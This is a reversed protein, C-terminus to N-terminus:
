DGEGEKCVDQVVVVFLRADGLVAGQTLRVVYTGGVGTDTGWRVGVVFDAFSFM